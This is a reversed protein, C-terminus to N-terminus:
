VVQVGEEDFAALVRPATYLGIWKNLEDFTLSAEGDPGAFYWRDDSHKRLAALSKDPFQLVVISDSEQIISM